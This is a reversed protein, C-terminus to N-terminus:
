KKNGSSSISHYNRRFYALVNNTPSPIEINKIEVFFVTHTGIEKHEVVRADLYAIADKLQPQNFHTSQTYLSETLRNEFEVETLGAFRNAINAQQDNLINICLLKHQLLIDHMKSQQNICFLLSPPTDTVPTVSTMTIAYSGLTGSTTISFVSSAAQAFFNRFLQQLNRDKVM